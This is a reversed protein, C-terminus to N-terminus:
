RATGLVIVLAFGIVYNSYKRSLTYLREEQIDEEIERLFDSM